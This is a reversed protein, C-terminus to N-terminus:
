NSNKKWNSDENNSKFVFVGGAQQLSLDSNSATNSTNFFSTENDKNLSSLTVSAYSNTFVASSAPNLGVASLDGGLAGFAGSLARFRATGQIDGDNYRLADNIDQANIMPM